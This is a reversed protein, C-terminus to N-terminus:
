CAWTGGLCVCEPFPQPTTCGSSFSPFFPPAPTPTAATTTATNSASTGGGSATITVQQSASLGTVTFSPTVVSNANLIFSTPSISGATSSLTITVATGGTNEAFITGSISTETVSGINVGLSVAPAFSPFFPPAPTPTAVFNYLRYTVVTSYDVLTNAAPDQEAVTDNLSSTSTDIDTGIFYDLGAATLAVIAASDALGILNPVLVMGKASAYYGFANVM